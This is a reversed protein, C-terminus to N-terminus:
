STVGYFMILYEARLLGLTKISDENAFGSNAKNFNDALKSGVINFNDALNPYSQRTNEQGNPFAQETLSNNLYGMIFGSGVKNFNDALNPYSQGTNEQRNPFAQRTLSNDLYSIAFGSSVKNFNDTFNPYSQRTNEQGNPFAQETLSNDLYGIVFGSSVKDFNDALNPYNQIERDQVTNNLPLFPFLTRAKVSSRKNSNKPDISRDVPSLLQLPSLSQLNLALNTSLGSNTYLDLYRSNVDALPTARKLENAPSDLLPNKYLM